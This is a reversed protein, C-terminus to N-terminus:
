AGEKKAEKTATHLKYNLTLLALTTIIWAIIIAILTANILTM